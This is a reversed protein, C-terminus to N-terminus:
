DIPGITRWHISACQTIGSPSCMPSGNRNVGSIHSNM